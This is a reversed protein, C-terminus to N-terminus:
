SLSAVDEAERVVWEEFMRVSAPKPQDLRFQLYYAGDTPVRLKLPAVLRGGRLDDEVLALQAIM